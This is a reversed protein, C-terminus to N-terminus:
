KKVSLAALYSLFAPILPFICPSFFSIIGALFSIWINVQLFDPLIFQISILVDSLFFINSISALQNFFILIGVILLISGFVYRLINISKQSRTIFKQARATFLGVLLFPLGLGLSYAFLLFFAHTPEVVALTLVSGLVPGICPSWSVAFAAGFLFANVYQFKSRIKPKFEKELFDINFINLLTLGFFFIVIGGIRSLWLKIQNSVAILVSQLLIGLLSFIISFGLVFFVTCLFIHKQNKDM